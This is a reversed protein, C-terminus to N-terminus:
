TNRASFKYNQRKLPDDTQYNLLTAQTM